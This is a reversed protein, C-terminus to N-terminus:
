RLLVECIDEIVEFIALRRDRMHRWPRPILFRDTPDPCRAVSLAGFVDVWTHM